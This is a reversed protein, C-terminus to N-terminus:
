KWDMQPRHALHLCNGIDEPEGMQRVAEQVAPEEANGELMLLEAREEIHGLLEERIESHMPKARVQKCVRDLFEQVVRYEEARLM